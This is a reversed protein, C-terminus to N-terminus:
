SRAFFKSTFSKKILLKQIEEYSPFNELNGIAAVSLKSSLMKESIRRLDDSTVAEISEYLEQASKHFGLGLIQRGIDEFRVVRSELNMMLMSQTQKKARAVEVEHFPESILRTYENTIVKVLDKAESPHASSHIAFLGADAYSHNFAASSFMWHKRNLVNTYLRSYMGKGPGGASFSGGGGLLTNLVAFSFMDKDAYNAGEFAIAVHVLEPLQTIGPQLRPEPRHDKLIGGTYQAISRDPDIRHKIIPANDVFFKKCYKVLEEHNVNVGSITIREPRYYRNMYDKLICSSLKSISNQPCLKPLGLTNGNFAAAHILDTLQPELDPRYNLSDLEFLISQKQEEVESDKLTPRLVTESLINVVGEVNYKFASAAYISCDSFSFSRFIQCDAHGGLKELEKVIVENSEYNATSHFALKELIHSVGGEYDIEYRSGADILAGITCFQGFSDESAVKLGNQLTTFKVNKIKQASLVNKSFVNENFFPVTLPPIKDFSVSRKCSFILSIFQLPNSKSKLVKAAM